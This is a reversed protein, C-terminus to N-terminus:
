IMNWVRVDWKNLFYKWINSLFVIIRPYTIEVKQKMWYHILDIEDYTILRWFSFSWYRSILCISNHTIINRFIVNTIRIIIIYYIYKLKTGGLLLICANSLWTEIKTQLGDSKQQLLTWYLSCKEVSCLELQSTLPFYVLILWIRKPAESTNKIM